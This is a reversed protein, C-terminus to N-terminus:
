AICRPPLRAARDTPTTLNAIFALRNANLPWVRDHWDKLAQHYSAPATLPRRPLQDVPTYSRTRGM